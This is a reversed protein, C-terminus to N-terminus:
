CRLCRVDVARQPTPEDGHYTGVLKAIVLRNCKPIMEVPAIMLRLILPYQKIPQLNTALSGHGETHLRTLEVCICGVVM